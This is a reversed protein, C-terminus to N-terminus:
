ALVEVPIEFWIIVRDDELREETFNTYMRITLTDCLGGLTPDTEIADTVTELFGALLDNSAEDDEWLVGVRVPIILDVAAVQDPKVYETPWGVVACPYVPAKPRVRYVQLAASLDTTISDAIAARLDTLLDSM